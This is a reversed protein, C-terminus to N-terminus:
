GRVPADVRIEPRSRATVSVHLFPRTTAITIQLGFAVLFFAQGVVVAGMRQHAALSAPAFASIRSASWSIGRSKLQEIAASWLKIFAMGNRQEPVIYLDYDWCAQGEPAPVFTCRVEDEHYPGPCLWIFGVMQSARFLAICSSGQGFRARLVPQPRPFALLASDGESIQRVEFTEGLRRPLRLPMDVPQAVLYYRQIFARSATLRKLVRDCLYLAANSFGLDRLRM